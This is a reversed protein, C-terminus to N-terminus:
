FMQVHEDPLFYIGQMGQLCLSNKATLDIRPSKTM